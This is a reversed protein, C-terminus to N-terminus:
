FAGLFKLMNKLSELIIVSTHKVSQPGTQAVFHCALLGLEMALAVMIVVGVLGHFLLFRGYSLRLDNIFLASEYLWLHAVQVSWDYLPGHDLYNPRWNLDRPDVLLAEVSIVM